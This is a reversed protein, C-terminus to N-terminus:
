HRIVLDLEWMQWGQLKRWLRLFRHLRDLKQADLVRIVKKDTDSSADLHDIAIDGAPNIYKLDLLALLQNYELGTKQLFKKVNGVADLWATNGTEGWVQQQGAVTADAVLILRQEDFAASPDSSIGFYEAAIQGDTRNNPAA